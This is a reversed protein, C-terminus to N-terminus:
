RNVPGLWREFSAMAEQAAVQRTSTASVQGATARSSRTARSGPSHTKRASDNRGQPDEIAYVISYTYTTQQRGVATSVDRKRQLERYPGGGQADVLDAFRELAIKAEHRVEQSDRGSVTFVYLHTHGVNFTPVRASATGDHFDSGILAREIDHKHPLRVQGTADYECTAIIAM